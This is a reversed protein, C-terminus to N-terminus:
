LIDLLLLFDLQLSMGQDNERIPEDNTEFLHAGAVLQKVAGLPKIAVM